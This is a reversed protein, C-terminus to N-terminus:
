TAASPTVRLPKLKAAPAPGLDAAILKEELEDLLARDLKRKTFVGTISETLKTSSRSLGTRLKQFWGRKESSAAETM